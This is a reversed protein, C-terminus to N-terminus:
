KLTFVWDRVCGRVPVFRLVTLAGGARLRRPVRDYPGHSRPSPAFTTLSRQVTQFRASLGDTLVFGMPIPKGGRMYWLVTDFCQNCLHIYVARMNNCACIYMITNLIHYLMHTPALGRGAGKEFLVVLLSIFVLGGKLLFM